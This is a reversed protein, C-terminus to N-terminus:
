KDQEYLELENLLTKFQEPLPAIFQMNEWNLFPTYSEEIKYKYAHLLHNKLNYKRLLQKNVQANGYKADGILPYGRTALQARIQHSKGTEIIVELLTFRGNNHIPTAITKVYSGNGKKNIAVKNNVSDKLLYDELVISKELVGVVITLYKKETKKEAIIQNIVQLAKVSKGAIVIGSTNRDLRNCIGPKFGKETGLYAEIQNVLSLSKGDPQSLIGSPKNCVLIDDDEYIIILQNVYDSQFNGKNADESQLNDSSIEDTQFKQYTEDSLYFAIEDGLKIIENGSIKKNNLLINKKRFMKYIFSKPAKGLLKLIFKDIRQNEQRQNVITKQM